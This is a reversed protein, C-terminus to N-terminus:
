SESPPARTWALLKRSPPLRLSHAPRLPDFEVSRDLVVNDLDRRLIATRDATAPTHDHQGIFRGPDFHVHDIVQEGMGDLGPAELRQRPFVSMGPSWTPAEKM